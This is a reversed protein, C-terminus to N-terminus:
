APAINVWSVFIRENIVGIRGIIRNHTSFVERVCIRQQPIDFKGRLTKAVRSPMVALYVDHVM